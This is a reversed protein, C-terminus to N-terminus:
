NKASNVALFIKQFIFCNIYYPVRLHISIVTLFSSDFEWGCGIVASLRYYNFCARMYKFFM